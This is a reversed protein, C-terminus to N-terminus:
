SLQGRFYASLLVFNSENALSELARKFIFGVRSVVFYELM